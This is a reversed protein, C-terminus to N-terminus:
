AEEAEVDAAEPREIYFIFSFGTGKPGVQWAYVDLAQLEPSRGFHYSALAQIEKLRDASAITKKDDQLRYTHHHLVM